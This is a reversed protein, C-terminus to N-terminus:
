FTAWLEFFRGIQDCQQNHGSIPGLGTFLSLPIANSKPIILSSTIEFYPQGSRHEGAGEGDLKDSEKDDKENAGVREFLEPDNEAIKGPVM